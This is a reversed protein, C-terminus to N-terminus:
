PHAPLRFGTLTLGFGKLGLLLEERRGLTFSGTSLRIRNGTLVRCRPAHPLNFYSVRVGAKEGTAAAPRPDLSHEGVRSAPTM